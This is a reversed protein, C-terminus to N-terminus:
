YRLTVLLKERPRLAMRFNSDQKVIEPSILNEIYTMQERSMRFYDRFKEPLRMLRPVLQTMHGEHKFQLLEHVWFRHRRKQRRRRRVVAILILNMVQPDIAGPPLGNGDMRCCISFLFRNDGM